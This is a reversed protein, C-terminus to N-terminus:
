LVSIKQYEKIYQQIIYQHSFDTQIATIAKQSMSQLCTLEKIMTNFTELIANEAAISTVWGLGKEKVYDSLGVKNSVWVPTGVSLSELIVNAFNENHSLLVTVDHEYFVQFKATKSVWGVWSIRASINLNDALSKLRQVLQEDGTGAITLTWNMNTQSLAQLLIDLGKKHHIRSLFLFKLTDSEKPFSKKHRINTPLTLINPAIFTNFPKSGYEQKEQVATAHLQVKKLLYQGITAHFIKKLFSTLTYPSLMGRTSLIPKKGKLLCVIVSFIAVTNWWSHIHIIDFDSSKQWLSKLLSPSFHSNDKTWRKFYFVAVQEIDIKQNTKVNLEEKGNATTTFVTITHGNKAM